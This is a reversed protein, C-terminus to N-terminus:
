ERSQSNTSLANISQRNLRMQDFRVYMIRNLGFSDFPAANLRRYRNEVFVHAETYTLKTQDPENQLTYMTRVM